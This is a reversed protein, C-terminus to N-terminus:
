YIDSVEFYTMIAQDRGFVEKIAVLTGLPLGLFRVMPDFMMLRPFHGGSYRAKVRAALEANLPMHRPVMSHDIIAAQLEGYQFHQILGVTNEQETLFKKSYATLDKRSLVIATHVSSAVMTEGIERMTDVNGQDIVVVIAKMGPASNMAWATTFTAPGSEPIAAEMVIEHSEEAIAARGHQAYPALLAVAEEPTRAKSDGVLTIDYGRAKLLKVVTCLARFLTVRLQEKEQAQALAGQPAVDAGSTNAEEGDGTEVRNSMVTTLSPATAVSECPGKCM